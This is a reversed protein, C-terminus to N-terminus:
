EEGGDEDGFDDADEAEGDDGDPLRAKVRVPHERGPVGLDVVQPPVEGERERRALGRDGPRLREALEAGSVARVIEGGGEVVDVQLGRAIDPQGAPGVTLWRFDGMEAMTVDQRVEMGVKQTYFALAEDQDHVWVNVHTLQKITM